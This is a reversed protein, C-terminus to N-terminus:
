RRPHPNQLDRAPSSTRRTEPPVPRASGPDVSRGTAAARRAPLLHRIPWVYGSRERVFQTFDGRGNYLCVSGCVHGCPTGEKPKHNTVVLRPLFGKRKPAEAFPLPDGITWRDGNVPHFVAHACHRFIKRDTEKRGPGKAGQANARQADGGGSPRAQAAKRAFRAERASRRFRGADERAPLPTEWRTTRGPTCSRACRNRDEPAGVGVAVGRGTVSGIVIRSSWYRLRDRSASPANDPNSFAADDATPTRDV